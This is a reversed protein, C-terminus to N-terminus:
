SDTDPILDAWDTQQSGTSRAGDFGGDVALVEGAIYSAGSQRDHRAAM